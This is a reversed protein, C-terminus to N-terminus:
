LTTAKKPHVPLGDGELTKKADKHAELAAAPDEEKDKITTSSLEPIDAPKEEVPGTGTVPRSSTASTIRVKRDSSESIRRLETVFSEGWWASYSKLM